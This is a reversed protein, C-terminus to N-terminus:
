PEPVETITVWWVPRQEGTLWNEYLEVFEISTVEGYINGFITSLYGHVGIDLGPPLEGELKYSLSRNM